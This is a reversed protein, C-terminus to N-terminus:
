NKPFKQWYESLKDNSLSDVPLTVYDLALFMKGQYSKSFWDNFRAKIINTIRKNEEHNNNTLIYLNGGGAYIVNTLPLNLETLLQQTIETTM